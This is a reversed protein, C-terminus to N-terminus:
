KEGGENLQKLADILKQPLKIGVRGCNELISIGENAVLFGVTASRVVGNLGAANDIINAVAVVVFFLIKKLVGKLGVSSDIAKNIYAVILGTIMDLVAFAILAILWTDPTGWLFAIVASIGGGVLKLSDTM